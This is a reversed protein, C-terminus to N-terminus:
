KGTFNAALYKGAPSLFVYLNQKEQDKAQSNNFTVVWEPSNNYTKQEVEVPKVEAWSNELKGAQVLKGVIHTAQKEAQEQNIKHATGHDHGTGAYASSASFVVALVFFLIVKQM